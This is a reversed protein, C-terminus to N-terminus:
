FISNQHPASFCPQGRHRLNAKIDDPVLKKCSNGRGTPTIDTHVLYHKDYSSTKNRLLMESKM